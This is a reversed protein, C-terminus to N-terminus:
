DEENRQEYLEVSNQLVKMALWAYIQAHLCDDPATAAHRWVKREHSGKGQNVIDEYENLIDQIPVGMQRVNPFIVEQNKLSIMYSDVAATRNVLYRNTNNSWRILQSYGQGGGYQSQGVRHPGLADRLRANAIAGGGADGIVYQVGIEKCIKAIEDVDQSPNDGAFIKFYVTRLRYDKDLGFVWLVTRSVLGNSTDGGGGWDVGAALVRLGKMAKGPLPFDVYYDKCLRLLDDESVYRSGFSSSKGLVENDFKSESYTEYKQLIRDWREQSENNAPLILQPIRYGEMNAKPNFSYWKGYRPNLSKGCNLCIIGSKGMSKPSNIFQWKSCGECQMIWQSQTSKQWLCEITNEMTKPTGTYFSYAYESASMCENVVPIVADYVIDQIEDLLNRDSSTGRVRDPDDVAYSLTIESWNSLMQEFVNNTMNSSVFTEKILPSSHIVKQLRSNSFKRTQASSPSLFLTKFHPTRISDVVTLNAATTTKAVQRGTM